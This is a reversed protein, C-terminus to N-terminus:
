TGATWTTSRTMTCTLTLKKAVDDWEIMYDAVAGPSAAIYAKMDAYEVASSAEFVMTTTCSAM